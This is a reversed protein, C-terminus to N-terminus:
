PGAREAQDADAIKLMLKGDHSGDFLRMFAEHFRELGVEVHERAHIKGERAWLHLQGIAEPFRDLYQRGLFGRMTACKAILQWLNGPGAGRDSANYQSVMGCEVLRAQCNIAALAADLVVGGVNDFYIDVGLPCAAQIDETLQELSRQRYDIAADFSFDDLLRRCKRAGGAIGVTRCGAIGAMQGVLSGVSGAAGSILVTEGAVPRGIDFLGFYATMANLGYLSLHRSLPVDDSRDIRSFWQGAPLMSYDGVTGMTLLLDGTRLAESRSEVAQGLCLCRIPAGLPIPDSYSDEDMWRRMAPDLSCYLNRILVAGDALAPMPEGVIGFDEPLPM